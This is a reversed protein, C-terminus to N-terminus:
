SWYIYVDHLEVNKNNLTKFRWRPATGSPQSSVSTEAAEVVRIGATPSPSTFLETLTMTSWTTGGDRSCELTYDTGAAAADVERVRILAKMKTPVSAATFSASRVTLNNPASSDFFQAEAVYAENAGGSIVEIWNYRYAGPTVGTLISHLTNSGVAAAVSATTYLITGGYGSGDWATPASNSGKLRITVTAGVAEFGVVNTPSWVKFGTLTRTNGSGWDKGLHGRGSSSPGRASATYADATVSNFAGALGGQFTMDGIATGTAQAIQSQSATAKLLGTASTDLNTAGAVDVYTLADFTDAVRNGAPGLFLALNANDAVQLALQSVTLELEALSIAAWTGDARLFKLAAAEGAAPAPVLGKTGGSGADGVMADLAATAQATTLFKILKGTTGDAAALRGDVAVAPGVVDGTGTGDTGKRAVLQWWANSITPLTPPANGTSPILARWSSGNDQVGDDVAYTTVPNYNGRWTLGRSGQPGPDGEDGKPGSYPAPDTWNGYAGSAKSYIASSGDGINSVLVRYNSRLPNDASELALRAATDDVQIDFYASVQGLQELVLRTQATSREIIGVYRIEYADATLATGPWPAALTLTGNAEVSAVRQPPVLPQALDCFLDGAM